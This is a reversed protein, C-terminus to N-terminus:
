LQRSQPTASQRWLTLQAIIAEVVQEYGSELMMDHAMDEFMVPVVGYARATAAVQKHSFIRDRSGGIVMMPAIIKSPRCLDLGLLDLYARYSEEQMRLATMLVRVESADESFFLRKVKNRDSVVPLLRRTVNCKLVGWPDDRALRVLSRLFGTPPVSALLVGGAAPNAELFKQVVFGGMSHGIVIPASRLGSAVEVIDAVYDRIRAKPLDKRGLSRGHGRLSMAHVQFGQSAFCAMFGEDWCWAGHWAGHVLLIPPIDSTSTGRSIVEIRPSVQDVINEATLQLPNELGLPKAVVKQVRAMRTDSLFKFPPAGQPDDDLEALSPRVHVRDRLRTDKSTRHWGAKPSSLSGVRALCKELPVHSTHEM